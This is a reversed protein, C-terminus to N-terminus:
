QTQQSSAQPSNLVFLLVLGIDEVGVVLTYSEGYHEPSSTKVQSSISEQKHHCLVLTGPFITLQPLQGITKRSKM